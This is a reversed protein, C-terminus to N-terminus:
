AWLRVKIPHLLSLPNRYEDGAKAGWHLRSSPREAEDRHGEVVYGIVEGAQVRQGVSVSAEVPEYTTRIGSSHAISIVPRDVITRATVVVGDGAAYVPSGHPMALDVGRHGSLWPEAPLDFDRAM